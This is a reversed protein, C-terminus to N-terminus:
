VLFQVAPKRGHVFPLGHQKKKNQKKNTKYIKEWLRLKKKTLKTYLGPGKPGKFSISEPTDGFQTAESIPHEGGGGGFFFFSDCFLYCTEELIPWGKQLMWRPPPSSKRPGCDKGVGPHARKEEIARPHNARIRSIDSLM